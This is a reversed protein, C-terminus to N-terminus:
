KDEVILVQEDGTSFDRQTVKIGSAKDKAIEDITRLDGKKRKGIERVGGIEPSIPSDGTVSMGLVERRREIRAKVEAPDPFKGTVKKERAAKIAETFELLSPSTISSETSFGGPLELGAAVDRKFEKASKADRSAKGKTDELDRLTRNKEFDKKLQKLSKKKGPSKELKGTAVISARRARKEPLKAEKKQLEDVPVRELEKEREEQAERAVKIAEIQGSGFLRSIAAQIEEETVEPGPVGKTGGEGFEVDVKSITEFGKGGDENSFRRLAKESLVAEQFERKAFYSKTRVGKAALSHRWSEYFWGSKM